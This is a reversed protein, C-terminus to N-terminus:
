DWARDGIEVVRTQRWVRDGQLGQKKEMTGCLGQGLTHYGEERGCWGMPGAREWCGRFGM